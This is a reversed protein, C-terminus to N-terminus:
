PHGRPRGEKPARDRGRGESASRATRLDRASTPHGPGPQRSRDRGPPSRAKGQGRRVNRPQTSAAKSNVQRSASPEQSKLLAVLPMAAIVASAILGDNSPARIAICAIAVIAVCAVLSAPGARDLSTAIRDVIAVLLRARKAETFDDWGEFDPRERDPDQATM